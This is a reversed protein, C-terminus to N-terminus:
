LVAQPDFPWIGTRLWASTIVEKKFGQQFAPWFTAFFNRKKVAAHGTVPHSGHGGLFSMRWYRRAKDETEKDLVGELWSFKHWDSTWGN